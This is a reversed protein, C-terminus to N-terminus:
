NDIFAQPWISLPSPTAKATPGWSSVGPVGLCRNWAYFGLDPESAWAGWFALSYGLGKKSFFCRGEGVQAHPVGNSQALDWFNFGAMRRARLGM